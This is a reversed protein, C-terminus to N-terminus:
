NDSYLYIDAKHEQKTHRYGHTNLGGIEFGQSLYFLCAILNNDQAITYLGKYQRKEAEIRGLKILEAAIGQKRYERNVKLDSLYMFKAWDNQYVALGVCEGQSYAGIAFGVATVEKFDYNEDPFTMATKEPFWESSHMWEDNSRSVHLRGLIDFPENRLRLDEAREETIIRYSIMM